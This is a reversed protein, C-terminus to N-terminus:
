PVDITVTRATDASSRGIRLEYTGPDVIWGHQDAGAPSSTWPVHTALRGMVEDLAPDPAAWRAFARDDLEVEVVTSAGADLAVKAFAKLEKEPRFVRAGQPAVYLQVVETGARSGVNTVPVAVRVTAGPVFTSQTLRPEGIEFTSYSLGHGFPFEVDIGRSEYWRYGVLLGEGYRVRGGEAPFNGWSPNDELRRPVTTPLRGGPDADGFVVDSLAAAMEQGGFWTQLVARADGAWPMAVVSGANVVIVADPAVELVRAVLEDQAGPLHMSTRDVGETEWDGDTGVVVIAVDAVAAAAVARDISDAPLAPIIGLKAGAMLAQDVVTSRLEISVPRDPSLDLVTTIAQKAMGLMERGPVLPQAHGDLVVEGDVLLVAPETQVLALLWPGPEDVTLEATARWSFTPGAEPPRNGFWVVSGDSARATHLVEGGQDDPAFFEIRMGPEGDARLWPGPVAPTTVTIDVGPEHVVQVSDGLRESLM